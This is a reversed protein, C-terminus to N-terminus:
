SQKQRVGSKFWKWERLLPSGLNYFCPWATLENM